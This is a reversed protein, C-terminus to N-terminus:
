NDAICGAAACGFQTPPNNDASAKPNANSDPQSVSERESLRYPVFSQTYASCSYTIFGNTGAELCVQDDGGTVADIQQLVSRSRFFM